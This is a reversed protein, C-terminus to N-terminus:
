PLERPINKLSLSYVGTDHEPEEGGGGCMSM